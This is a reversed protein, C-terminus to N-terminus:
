QSGHSSHQGTFIHSSPNKKPKKVAAPLM